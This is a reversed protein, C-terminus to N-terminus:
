HCKENERYEIARIYIVPANKFTYTKWSTGFQITGSVVDVQEGYIREIYISRINNLRKLERGKMPLFLVNMNTEGPQNKFSLTQIQEKYKCITGKCKIIGIRGYIMRVSHPCKGYGKRLKFIPMNYVAEKASIISVETIFLLIILILKM